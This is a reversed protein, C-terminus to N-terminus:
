SEISLEKFHISDIIEVVKIGANYTCVDSKNSELIAQHMKSYTYDSEIKEITYSTKKTTIDYSVLTNEILNAEITKNQTHIILRRLPVKSLYDVTLNLIVNKDTQILATFIDDSQIELDSVKTNISTIQLFEGFLWISYDLEHSLDRLVGGGKILSASYSKTYDQEPRWSPLYQGCMVHASYIKESLLLEKLAQLVPHFRLNYATYINNTTDLFAECKSYLPKEVLINKKSVKTCLYKLQEYHKSTISSIIFYEYFNLDKITDLTLFTTTDKIDQHTVLDIKQISDFKKLISHHKKGISGYGIILANM